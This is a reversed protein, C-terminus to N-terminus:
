LCVCYVRNLHEGMWGEMLIDDLGTPPAASQTSRSDVSVSIAQQLRDLNDLLVSAEGAAADWQTLQLHCNSPLMPM